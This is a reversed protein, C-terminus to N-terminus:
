NVVATQYGEVGPLKITGSLKFSRQDLVWILPQKHSYVYLKGTKGIATVHYPAPVLAGFM